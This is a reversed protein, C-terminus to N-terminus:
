KYLHLTDMLEDLQGTVTKESGREQDFQVLLMLLQDLRDLVQQSQTVYNELLQMREETVKDGALATVARDAQEANQRLEKLVLQAAGEFKAATLSTAGFLSSVLGSIRNVKEEGQAILADLKQRLEKLVLQAAGEFKAATLSTAGFLSSVLGSIRNVKEEGQAILADLKRLQPEYPLRGFGDIWRFPFVLLGIMLVCFLIVGLNLSRLWPRLTTQRVWINLAICFVFGGILLIHTSVRM